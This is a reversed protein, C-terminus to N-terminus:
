LPLCYARSLCFLLFNETDGVVSLCYGIFFVHFDFHSRYINDNVNQNMFM